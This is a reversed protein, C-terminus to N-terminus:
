GDSGELQLRDVQRAIERRGRETEAIETHAQRSYIQARIGKPVPNPKGGAIRRAAWDLHDELAALYMKREWRRRKERVVARAAQDPERPPYHRRALPHEGRTMKVGAERRDALTDRLPRLTGPPPAPAAPPRRRMPPKPKIPESM